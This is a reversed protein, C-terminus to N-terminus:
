SKGVCHLRVARQGCEVCPIPGRFPRARTYDQSGCHPCTAPTDVRAVRDAYRRRVFWRVGSEVVGFLFVSTAWGASFGAWGQGVWMGVGVGAGLAATGVGFCGLDGFAGLSASLRRIEFRSGCSRCFAKTVLVLRGGWAADQYSYGIESLIHSELPHGLVVFHPDDPHAWRSTTPEDLFVAWYGESGIPSTVNCASCHAQYVAPM